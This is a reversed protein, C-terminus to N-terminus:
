YYDEEGYGEDYGEEYYGEEYGEEYYGEEYGEEYAGEEYGGQDYGQDYGGQDYGQDYGGQDYSAEEYGGQDYGGQDYSGQDDGGQDYSGQDYGGQDYSGQDYDGQDYGGQDYSQDQHGQDYGDYTQDGGYSQQDNLSLKSFQEAAGTLGSDRNEYSIHPTPEPAVYNRQPAHRSQIDSANSGGANVVEASSVPKLAGPAFTSRATSDVGKQMRAAKPAKMASQMEISAVQTHGVTPRHVKCYPKNQFSELTKLNLTLGCETCKLCGKHWTGGCAKIQENEYVTKQCSPCKNSGGGVKVTNPGKYGGSSPAARPAASQPAPQSAQPPRNVPAGRNAPAGRNVPAGRGPNIPGAAGPAFTMRADKSVGQVRQAARPAKMASQDTVSAVQTHSVSPKHVSCYPKNQFSVVTKL